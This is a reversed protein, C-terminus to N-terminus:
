KVRYIAAIPGTDVTTILPPLNCINDSAGAEQRRRTQSFLNRCVPLRRKPLDRGEKAAKLAAANAVYYRVQKTAPSVLLLSYGDAPANVVAETGIHNGGGAKNEVIVQQGLKDPLWQAMIHALVDATGGPPNPVIGSNM